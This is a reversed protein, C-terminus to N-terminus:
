QGYRVGCRRRWAQRRALYGEAERYEMNGHVGAGVAM